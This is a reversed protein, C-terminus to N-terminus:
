KETEARNERQDGRPMSGGRLNFIIQRLTEMLNAMNEEPIGAFSDINNQLIIPMVEDLKRKGEASLRLAISRRDTTRKTKEILGRDIMTRVTSTLTTRDVSTTNSLMQMTCDPWENLVALVRWRSYDLDFDSLARNIIRGRCFFIQSFLFFPHENLSFRETAVSNTDKRGAMKTDAM